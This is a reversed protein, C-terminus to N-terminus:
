NSISPGFSHLINIKTRPEWHGVVVYKATCTFEPTDFSEVTEMVKRAIDRTPFKMWIRAPKELDLPLSIEATEPRETESLNLSDLLRKALTAKDASLRLPGSLFFKIKKTPKDAARHAYKPRLTIDNPLYVPREVAKAADELKEFEVLVGPSRVTRNVSTIKGYQALAAEVESDTMSIGSLGVFVNQNPKIKDKGPFAEFELGNVGTITRKKRLSSWGGRFDETDEFDIFIPRRGPSASQPLTIDRIEGLPQFSEQIIKRALSPDTPLSNALKPLVMMRFAKPYLESSLFRVSLAQGSRFSFIGLRCSQLRFWPQLSFM